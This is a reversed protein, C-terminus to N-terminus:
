PIRRIFRVRLLNLEIRVRLMFVQARLAVKLAMIGEARYIHRPHFQVAEPPLFGLRRLSYLSHM